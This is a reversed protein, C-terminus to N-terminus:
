GNPGLRIQRWGVQKEHIPYGYEDRKPKPRRAVEVYHRLLLPLTAYRRGSYYVPDALAPDRNASSLGKGIRKGLRALEYHRYHDDGFEISPDIGGIEDLAWRRVFQNYGAWCSFPHSKRLALSTRRVARFLWHGGEPLAGSSIGLLDPHEDLHTYSTRLVTSGRGLDARTVLPPLVRTDADTLWVYEGGPTMADYAARRCHGVGKTTCLVYRAGCNRIIAPTRDTSNNDAIVLEAIGPAIEMRSMAVLTPLLEIEENYAPILVSIRPKESQFRGTLQAQIPLCFERFEDPSLRSAPSPEGRLRARVADKSLFYALYDDYTWTRWGDLSPRRLRQRSQDNM